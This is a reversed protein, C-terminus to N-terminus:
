SLNEFYLEIGESKLTANLDLLFFLYFELSESELELSLM